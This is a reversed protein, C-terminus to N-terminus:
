TRRYCIECKGGAMQAILGPKQKYKRKACNNRLLQAM